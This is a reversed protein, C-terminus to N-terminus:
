RLDYAIGYASCVRFGVTVKNKGLVFMFSNQRCNEQLSSPVVFGLDVM